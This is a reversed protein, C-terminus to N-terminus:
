RGRPRLLDPGADGRRRKTRLAAGIDPPPGDDHAGGDAPRAPFLTGERCLDTSMKGALGAEIFTGTQLATQEIVAATQDEDFTRLEFTSGTAALVSRPLLRGLLHYADSDVSFLLRLRAGGAALVGSLFRKIKDIADAPASDSVVAELHDLMLVAGGRSAHTLRAVYDVMPEGAHPPEARSRSAAQILEQDLDEYDGVYLGLYGESALVPLLGARLLSTKGVGSPGTLASVRVGDQLVQTYLAELEVQRGFFVSSGSEDFPLAGRFPGTAAVGSLIM